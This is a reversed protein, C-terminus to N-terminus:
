SYYAFSESVLSFHLYKEEHVVTKGPHQKIRIHNSPFFSLSAQLICKVVFNNGISYFFHLNIKQHVVQPGQHRKFETSTTLFYLNFLDRLM